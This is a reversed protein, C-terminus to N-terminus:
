AGYITFSTSFPSFLSDFVRSKSPAYIMYIILYITEIISGFSNIGMLLLANAKLYAYYLMLMASFLAVSYPISQFGEASKKKYIKYFTPRRFIFM